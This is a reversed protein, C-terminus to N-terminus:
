NEDEETTKKFLKDIDEMIKRKDDETISGLETQGTYTAQKLKDLQEKIEPPMKDYLGDIEREVRIAFEDIVGLDISVGLITSLVELM